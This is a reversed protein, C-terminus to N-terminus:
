SAVAMLQSVFKNLMAVARGDNSFADERIEARGVLYYLFADYVSLDLPFATGLDGTTYRPVAKRLGLRLFLDPRKTRAELMAGNFAAIMDTDSYRYIPDDQIPSMANTQLTDQLMARAELILGGITPTGVSVSM